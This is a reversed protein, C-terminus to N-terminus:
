SSAAIMCATARSLRPAPRVQSDPSWTLARVAVNHSSYTNRLTGTEVDFIFVQGNESALALTQGDPSFKVSLGFKERGTELERLLKGFRDGDEGSPAASRLGVKGGAGCAAFVKDDPHLSVGWTTRNVSPEDDATAFNQGDERSVHELFSEHVQPAASGDLSHLITTGDQSNALASRGSRSVSLSVIGLPHEPSSGNVLKGELDRRAASPSCWITTTLM